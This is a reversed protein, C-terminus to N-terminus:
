AATRKAKGKKARSSSGPAGGAAPPAAAGSSGARRKDGREASGGGKNQQQKGKGGGGGGGQKGKGKGRKAAAAAAVREPETSIGGAAPAARKRRKEKKLHLMWDPVECGAARMVNAVGRLQGADEEEFFTIAEGARRAPPCHLWASRRSHALWGAAPRRFRLETLGARGRCKPRPALGPPARALAPRATHARAACAGSRGARGTRGIRHIYDTTSHPFDFNIVTNVGLFDMGRGILDTAVLM